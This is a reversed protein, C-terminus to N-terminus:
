HKSKKVKTMADKEEEKEKRKKDVEDLKASLDAQQKAWFELQHAAAAIQMQNGKAASINATEKKVSDITMALQEKIKGAENNLEQLEEMVQTYRGVAQRKRAEREEKQAAEKGKLMKQEREEALKTAYLAYAGQAAKLLDRTVPVKTVDGHHTIAAKVHRIGNLTATNMATKEKTLVRKSVSLSREVDANSHSLSLACKVLKPLVQFADGCADGKEFISRWFHDVRKKLDEESIDVQQFRVWEDGIKTDDQGKMSPMAQAVVKCHLLSKSSKQNQPDLFTLASLLESDLPMKKQLEKIAARYFSRMGLIFRKQGDTLKELAEQVRKGQVMVFEKDGLYLSVDDLDIYLLNRGEVSNYVDSKLMRSMAVKLLKECAPYLKHIMPEEKQFWVIFDDFLPKVGVLFEMQAEVKRSQLSRVMVQVKSEKDQAVDKDSKVLDKLMVVLPEKMEIIRELTPVLTLWRSPLHRMAMKEDLGLAEQIDILDHRRTPSRKFFYFIQTALEESELGFEKMGKVFSNHCTHILCSPPCMVLTALGKEKKLKDIKGKISKNVNPGDMGLSLLLKLPIANKELIGMLEQVVDVAKAHGFMISSLYRVQVEGKGECWFRVLVDMQKKVQANMTEDFHLTFFAKSKNIEGVTQASFFPGLGHAILYSMKNSGLTMNKAITSDPLMHQYGPVLGDATAFPTNGACFFMAAIIEARSTLEKLSWVDQSTSPEPAETKVLFQGLTPQTTKEMNNKHKATKIHQTIATVGMDKITLPVCCVKCWAQGDTKKGLWNGFREIWEEKFIRAKAM